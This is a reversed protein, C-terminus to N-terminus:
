SAASYLVRHTPSLGRLKPGDIPRLRLITIPANRGNVSYESKTPLRIEPAGIMVIKTASEQDRPGKACIPRRTSM